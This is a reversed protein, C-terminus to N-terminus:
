CTRSTSTDYRLKHVIKSNIVIIEEIKHIKMFLWKREICLFSRECRCLPYQHRSQIVSIFSDIASTYDFKIFYIVYDCVVFSIITCDSTTWVSLHMKNDICFSRIFFRCNEHNSSSSPQTVHTVHSIRSIRLKTRNWGHNWWVFTFHCNVAM